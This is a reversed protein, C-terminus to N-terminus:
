SELSEHNLDGKRKNGMGEKIRINFIQTTKREKKREKKRLTDIIKDQITEIITTGADINEHM